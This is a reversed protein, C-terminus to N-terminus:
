DQMTEECAAAHEGITVRYERMSPNYLAYGGKRTNKVHYLAQDAHRFLSYFDMGDGPYFAIGISCSLHIDHDEPRLEKMGMIMKDVLEAALQDSVGPLFALFEDGGVRGLVDTFRFQNRMMSAIGTLTKDGCLHGFQDNIYKFDDVDILFLAGEECHKWDLYEEMKKQSEAKNYLGTLGDNQARIMLEQQKRKEEEIDVIVGVARLPKRDNDFQTTARIRCWTFKGKENRIRFETESYPVGAATDTMISVFAKMDDPHINPSQPIRNSIGERIAPYGFKKRWNNSFTLTDDAINWEFIIDTAQDMIVQHRELSLRLEERQRRQETIDLMVCYFTRKGDEGVELRGKDLVWVLGGDKLPVRYELELDNKIALQHKMAAFVAKRDEKYIMRAFRNEFREEIDERSYGFMELFGDSMSIITLEEDDMCHHLGCPVNRTLASLERVRTQLEQLTEQEFTM